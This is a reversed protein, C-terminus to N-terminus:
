PLVWQKRDRISCDIDELNYFNGETERRSPNRPKRNNGWNELSLDREQIIYRLRDMIFRNDPRVTHTSVYGYKHSMRHEKLTYRHAVAVTLRSRGM